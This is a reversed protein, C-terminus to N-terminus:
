PRVSGKYMTNSFNLHLQDATKLKSYTDIKRLFDFASGNNPFFVYRVDSDCEVRVMHTGNTYEYKTNVGIRRPAQDITRKYPSINLM